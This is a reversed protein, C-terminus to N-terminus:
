YYGETSNHTSPTPYSLCTILSTDIQYHHGEQSSYTSPAPTVRVYSREPTAKKIPAGKRFQKMKLIKIASHCVVRQQHFGEPRAQRVHLSLVCEEQQDRTVQFVDDLRRSVATGAFGRITLVAFIVHETSRRQQPKESSM